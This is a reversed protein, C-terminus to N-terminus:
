VNATPAAAKPRPKKHLPCVSEALERCICGPHEDDTHVEGAAAGARASPTPEAPYALDLVRKRLETVSTSLTKPDREAIYRDFVEIVEALDVVSKV